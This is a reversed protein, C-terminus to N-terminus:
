AQMTKVMELFTPQVTVNAEQLAQGLKDDFFRQASEQSDWVEFVVLGNEGMGAAHSLMGAPMQGGPTVQELVREYQDRSVDAGQFMIGIAM